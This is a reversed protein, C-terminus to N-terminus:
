ETKCKISTVWLAKRDFSKKFESTLFEKSAYLKGNFVRKGNINVIVPNQLNVMVPSILIEIEKTRSTYIDFINNKFSARVAASKNLRYYPFDMYIKKIKNYSRTNLETQWNAKPLSVDFKLVRMWDCVNNTLDSMEWYITKQFPNRSITKIWQYSFPLDIQLHKDEHKYGIYEKFLVPSKLSDLIKMISRTQQIPRLDDLDSHVLYLPRNLTNILYIDYAPMNTLMSNYVVFGAFDSPKYIELSFVGDSGDSHGLAFVKNDDINLCQKLRNIIATLTNFTPNITMGSTKGSFRNVVWDFNITGDTNPGYGDAFPRVIIFNKEAFYKYFIEEDPISDKYADKFSSLVVAGHLILILPSSADSKYNKPIFVKLPIKGFISDDYIFLYYRDTKTIDPYHNWNSLISWASDPSIKPDQDIEKIKDILVKNALSLLESSQASSVLSTSFLFASLLWKM